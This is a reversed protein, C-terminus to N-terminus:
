YLDALSVNLEVFRRKGFSDKLVQNWTQYDCIARGQAPQQLWDLMPPPAAKERSLRMGSIDGLLQRGVARILELDTRIDGRRSRMVEFPAYDATITPAAQMLEGQRLAYWWGGLLAGSHQAPSVFISDISIANHALHAYDLYCAVNLLSSIMWGAHRADIQGGLHDLLDRLLVQDPAKKLVLVRGKKTMFHGVVEPLYRSIEAAMRPDACPLRRIIALANDFLDTYDNEIVYSVIEKGIFQRGLEFTREKRYRIKYSAGDTAKLRLLGPTQWIGGRLKQLAVQHLRSIHQFVETTVDNPCRDPHWRAALARFEQKLTEEDGSFLREPETLPAALLQEATLETLNIM